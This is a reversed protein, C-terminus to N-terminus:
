LLKKTMPKTFYPESTNSTTGQRTQIVQEIKSQNFDIYNTDEEKHKM